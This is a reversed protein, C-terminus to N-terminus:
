RRSPSAKRPMCKTGWCPHCTLSASRCRAGRCRWRTRPYFLHAIQTDRARTQQNAPPYGDRTAKKATTVPKDSDPIKGRGPTGVAKVPVASHKPGLLVVAGQFNTFKRNVFGDFGADIVASEFGNQGGTYKPLLNTDPDYLNNLKVDHAYAGVGDEPQFGSGQDVYFYIRKKIRADTAAELRAREAGKAGTGYAASNLISRAQKGYHRAVVSVAGKIPTGYEPIDRAQGSQQTIAAKSAADSLLAKLGPHMPSPIDDATVWRSAQTEWNLSPEFEKDVIALFNHYKFAGFKFVLLPQMEVKQTLGAEERLEREAAKAPNEDEDIAGGWTGWTGPELVDVSRHPLLIRGTDRAMVISGAGANGWFGTTRFADEHDREPSKQVEPLLHEDLKARSIWSQTGIKTNGDDYEIMAGGGSARIITGVRGDKQAKRGVLEPRHRLDNAVAEPRFSKWFKFADDSLSVAPQLTRGSTKEISKYLETAVGRRRYAEQVMVKLIVWRGNSDEWASARGVTKKGVMAVATHRNPADITVDLKKKTAGPMDHPLAEIKFKEGDATVRFDSNQWGKTPKIKKSGSQNLRITAQAAEKSTFGGIVTAWGDEDRAPSKTIDAKTADFAGTNGIASKVQTPNFAIYSDTGVTERHDRYAKEAAAYTKYAPNKQEELSFSNKSKAGFSQLMAARAVAIKARFPEGGVVEGTNKYIVGDHGKSQLFERIDKTSQLGGRMWLIPGIQASDKPFLNLLEDKMNDANWFGHDTLRIPNQISLYVPMVNAARTKGDKAVRPPVDADIRDSATAADGFHAGIDGSRRKFTDFDDYTGHYVVLPQGKEDVVKSAKFWKRFEPTQTQPRPPSLRVGADWDTKAELAKDAAEGYTGILKGDKGPAIYGWTLNDSDGQAYLIFPYLGGASHVQIGSGDPLHGQYFVSDRQPTKQIDGKKVKQGAKLVLAQMSPQTLNNQSVYQALATKFEARVAEIDKIYRGDASKFDGGKIAEIFQGIWEYMKAALEAIIGNAQSPNDKKIQAFVQGWFKGDKFLVGGIDSVIEKLETDSLDAGPAADKDQLSTGYDQARFQAGAGEPLNARVVKMIAAHAEPMDKELLHLLEHGFVSLHNVTTWENVFITKSDSRKIFGDSQFDGADSFMVIKKGFISAVGRLIRLSTKNIRARPKGKVTFRPPSAKDLDKDKVIKLTIPKGDDDHITVTDAVDGTTTGTDDTPEPETSSTDSPDTDTTGAGVPRLGPKDGTPAVSGPVNARQQDPRTTGDPKPLSRTNGDAAGAPKKAADSNAWAKFEAVTMTTVAGRRPPGSGDSFSADYAAVAQAETTAGLFSKTEDFKTGDYQNIVYVMSGEVADRVITVDIQDKDAGTTLPIYGYHGGRMFAEWPVGDKGVGRRIKDMATEIKVTIGDFVAEGKEYNGAKAQAPTPNPNTKNAAATIADNVAKQDDIIKRARQGDGPSVKYQETRGANVLYTGGDNRHEVTNLGHNIAWTLEAIRKSDYATQGPTPSFKVRPMKFNAPTTKATINATAPTEKTSVNPADKAVTPDLQPLTAGSQPLTGLNPVIGGVKPIGSGLVTTSARLGRYQVIEALTLSAPHQEAKDILAQEVATYKGEPAVDIPLNNGQPAVPPTIGGGTPPITAAPTEAGQPALNAEGWNLADDIKILSKERVGPPLSASGAISFENLLSKYDTPAGAANFASFGGLADLREKASAVSSSLTDNISVQQSELTLKEAAALDEYIARDEKSLLEGVKAPLNVLNGNEDVGKQAPRHQMRERYATLQEPGTLKLDEAEAQQAESLVDAATTATNGILAAGTLPGGSTRRVEALQEPTMIDAQRQIGGVNLLNGSSRALLSAAQPVSQSFGALAEAAADHVNGKGTAAEEGWYEGAGEGVSEMTLLGTARSARNAMTTAAKAAQTGATAAATKLAPNQLSAAIARADTIDVGADALVKAEARAGAKVASRNFLGAAAGGLKFTAADIATIVGAKIAGERISEWREQETFGGEAKEIAKGGVELAATGLFMGSLFGLGGGIVAGAVAGKPGLLAGYKAGALAGVKGGAWGGGLVVATNPVNTAVLQAVGEPDGVGQVVIDKAAQWASADPNIVKRKQIEAMFARLAAPDKAAAAEQEKALLEVDTLDGILTNGTAQVMRGTGRLGQGFASSLGSFFGEEKPKESVRPRARAAMFDDISQQPRYREAMFADISQHAAM